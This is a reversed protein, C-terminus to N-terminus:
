VHLAIYRSYYEGVLDVQFDEFDLYDYLQGVQSLFKDKDYITDDISFNFALGPPTVGWRNWDTDYQATGLKLALSKRAFNENNVLCVRRITPWYSHYYMSSEHNHVTITSWLGAAALDNVITRKIPEYKQFNEFNTGYLRNEGLEFRLWQHMLDRPPLTDLAFKLKQNYYTNDFDGRYELQWTALDLQTFVCHRSMAVCNQLMKGGAGAPFNFIIVRGNPIHCPYQNM